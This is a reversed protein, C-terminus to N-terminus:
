SAHVVSGFVSGMSIALVVLIREGIICGNHFGHLFVTKFNFLILHEVVNSLQLPFLDHREALESILQDNQSLVLIAVILM